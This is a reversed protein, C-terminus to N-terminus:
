GQLNGLSGLCPGRIHCSSWTVAWGWSRCPATLLELDWSQQTIHTASKTERPAPGWRLFQIVRFRNSHGLHQNDRLPRCFLSAAGLSSGSALPLSKLFSTTAREYTIPPAGEFLSPTVWGRRRRNRAICAIAQEWWQCGGHAMLHNLHPTARASASTPGTSM